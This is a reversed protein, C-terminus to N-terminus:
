GKSAAKYLKVFAETIIPKCDAICMGRYDIRGSKFSSQTSAEVAIGDVMNYGMYNFNGFYIADDAINDDIVAEFGLIKGVKDTQTDQIFVPRKNGDQLSYVQNYLTRNNMAFIAGNAYGRKLLAMAGVLDDWSLKTNTSGTFTVSNSSDWTIGAELGTGQGSGTGNIVGNAITAMVNNTLEDILYSEFAAVSMKRVSASISLVKIIEFSGFDVYAISPEGSEM